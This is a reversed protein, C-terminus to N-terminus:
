LGRQAGVYKVDPGMARATRQEVLRRYSFTDNQAELTSPGGSLALLFGRPCCAVMESETNSPLSHARTAHTFHRSVRNTAAPPELLSEWPHADKDRYTAYILIRSPILRYPISGLVM